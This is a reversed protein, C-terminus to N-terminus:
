SGSWSRLLLRRAWLEGSQEAGPGRMEMGARPM